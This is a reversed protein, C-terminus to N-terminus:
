RCHSWAVSAWEALHMPQTPAIDSLCTGAHGIAICRDWAFLQPTQCLLTLIEVVAVSLLFFDSSLTTRMFTLSLQQAPRTINEKAVCRRSHSNIALRCNEYSIHLPVIM